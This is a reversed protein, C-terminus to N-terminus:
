EPEIGTALLLRSVMNYSAITAIIEVAQKRGLRAHLSEVLGPRVIVKRTMDVTLTIVDRELENFATTNESAREPDRLADVQARTGGAALLEPAHHIFEYEAQNLVAVACIAIERLQASVEFRKRVAGMLLNWGTALEPSHLLMRDLNLLEGGRRAKISEVLDAPENIHADVYPIRPM